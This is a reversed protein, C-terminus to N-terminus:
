WSWVKLDSSCYGPIIYFGFERRRDVRWGRLKKIKFQVICM